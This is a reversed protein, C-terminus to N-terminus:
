VSTLFPNKTIVDSLITAGILFVGATTCIRVVGPPLRRWFDTMKSLFFDSSDTNDKSLDWGSASYFTLEMLLRILGYMSILAGFIMEVIM